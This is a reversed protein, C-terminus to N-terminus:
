EAPPAWHRGNAPLWSSRPQSGYKASAANIADEWAQWGAIAANVASDPVADGQDDDAQGAGGASQLHDGGGAFYLRQGATRRDLRVTSQGNVYRATQAPRSRGLYRDGDTDMGDVM